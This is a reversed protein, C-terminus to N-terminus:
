FGKRVSQFTRQVRAVKTFLFIIFPIQLIPLSTLHGSFKISVGTLCQHRALVEPEITSMQGAYFPETQNGRTVVVGGKVVMRM